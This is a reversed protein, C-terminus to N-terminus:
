NQRSGFPSRSSQNAHPIRVLRPARLAALVGLRQEFGTVGTRSESREDRVATVVNAFAGRKSVGTVGTLEAALRVALPQVSERAPNSGQVVSRRPHSNVTEELEFGRV